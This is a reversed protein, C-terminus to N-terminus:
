PNSLIASGTASVPLALTITQPISAVLGYSDTVTVSRYGNDIWENRNKGSEMVHSLSSIRAGACGWLSMVARFWGKYGNEHNAERAIGENLCRM